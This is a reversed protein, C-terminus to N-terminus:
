TSPEAPNSAQTEKPLYGADQLAQLARDRPGSRHGKAAGQLYARRLTPLSVRAELCLRMAAEAPITPKSM